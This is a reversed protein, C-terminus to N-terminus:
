SALLLPFALSSGRLSFSALLYLFVQKKHSGNGGKAGELRHSLLVQVLVHNVASLCFEGGLGRHKSCTDTDGLYLGGSATRLLCLLAALDDGLAGKM